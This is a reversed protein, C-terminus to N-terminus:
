MLQSRSAFVNYGSVITPTRATSLTRRKSDNKSPLELHNVYGSVYIRKKSLDVQTLSPMQVEVMATFRTDFTKDFSVDYFVMTEFGFVKTTSFTPKGNIMEGFILDVRRFNCRTIHIQGKHELSSNTGNVLVLPEMRDM